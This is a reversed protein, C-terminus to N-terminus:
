PKKREIKNMLHSQWISNKIIRKDLPQNKYDANNESEKSLIYKNLYEDYNIGYLRAQRRADAESMGRKRLEAQVEEYTDIGRKELEQKIQQESQAYLLSPAALLTLGYFIIIRTRNFRM